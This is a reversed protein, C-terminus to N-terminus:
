GFSVYGKPGSSLMGDEEYEANWERPGDHNRWVSVPMQEDPRDHYMVAVRHHGEILKPEFEGDENILGIHVPKEWNYGVNHISEGLGGHWGSPKEGAQPMWANDYKHWLVDEPVKAGIRETKWDGMKCHEAIERATMFMPPSYTKNDNSLRFLQRATFKAM